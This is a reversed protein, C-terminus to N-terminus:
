SSQLFFHAAYLTLRAPLCPPMSELFCDSPFALFLFLVASSRQPSLLSPSVSTSGQARSPASLVEEFATRVAQEHWIRTLNRTKEQRKLIYEM